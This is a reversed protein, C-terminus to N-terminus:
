AVDLARTGASEELSERMWIYPQGSMIKCTMDVVRSPPKTGGTDVCSTMTVRTGTEASRQVVEDCVVHGAGADASWGRLTEPRIACEQFVIKARVAGCTPAGQHETSRYNAVVGGESEQVVDRTYVFDRSSFGLFKLVPSEVRHYMTQRGYHVGQSQEPNSLNRFDAYNRDWQRRKSVDLVIEAVSQPEAGPFYADLRTVPLGDIDDTRRYVRVFPRCHAPLRSPVIERWADKGTERVLDEVSAREECDRPPSAASPESGRSRGWRYLRSSHILRIEHSNFTHKFDKPQVPPVAAAGREERVREWVRARPPSAVSPVHAGASYLPQARQGRRCPSVPPSRLAAAPPVPALPRLKALYERVAARLVAEARQVGVVGRGLRAGRTKIRHGRLAKSIAYIIRPRGRMLCKRRQFLVVLAIRRLLLVFMGRLMHVHRRRRRRRLVTPILAGVRATRAAIASSLETVRQRQTRIAARVAFARESGAHTRRLMRLQPSASRQRILLRM